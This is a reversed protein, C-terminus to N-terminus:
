RTAQISMFSSRRMQAMCAMVMTMIECNGMGMRSNFKAGMHGAWAGELVMAFWRIKFGIVISVIMMMRMVRRKM